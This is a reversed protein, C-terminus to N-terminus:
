IAQIGDMKQLHLVVMYKHRFNGAPHAPGTTYDHGAPLTWPCNPHCNLCPLHRSYKAPSSTAQLPVTKRWIRRVGELYYALGHM